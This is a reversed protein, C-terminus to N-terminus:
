TNQNSIPDAFNTILNTRVGQELEEPSFDALNTFLDDLNHMSEEDFASDNPVFKKLFNASYNTIWGRDDALLV